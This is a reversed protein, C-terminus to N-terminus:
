YTLFLSDSLAGPQAQGCGAVKGWLDSVHQVNLYLGEQLLEMYKLIKETSVLVSTAHM